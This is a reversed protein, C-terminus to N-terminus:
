LPDFLAFNPMTKLMARFSQAARTQFRLVIDWTQFLSTFWCRDSQTRQLNPATRDVCGQSRNPPKPGPWFNSPRFHALDHIVRGRITRNRDFETCVIVVHWWNLECWRCSSVTKDPRSSVTEDQRHRRHSSPMLIFILNENSQSVTQQIVPVIDVKYNISWCATSNRWCIQAVVPWPIRASTVLVTKQADMQHRETITKKINTKGCHECRLKGISVPQCFTITSTLADSARYSTLM